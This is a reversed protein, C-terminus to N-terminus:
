NDQSKIVRSSRRKSKYGFLVLQVTREVSSGDMSLQVIVYFPTFFCRMIDRRTLFVPSHIHATRTHHEPHLTADMAGAWLPTPAEAPASQNAGERSVGNQFVATQLCLRKENNESPVRVSFVGATLVNLGM